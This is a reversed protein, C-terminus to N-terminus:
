LRILKIPVPHNRKHTEDEETLPSDVGSFEGADLARGFQRVCENCIAASNGRRPNIAFLWEIEEMQRECFSCASMAPERARGDPLDYTEVMSGM